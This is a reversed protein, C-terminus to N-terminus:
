GTTQTFLERDDVDDNSSRLSANARSAGSLSPPLEVRPRGNVLPQAEAQWAEMAAKRFEPDKLAEERLKAKYATLDTGVEARTKQERHWQILTEGPDRSQQMLAKLAPDVQKQAAAYAEEFEGKYTKHANSLSTERTANLQREEWKQELYQEFGDPDLLPDPKVPKTPEAKPAPRELAELRQKLAAKEARENALETEAARAREADEKLRWEPKPPIPPKEATLDGVELEPKEEIVAQEPQEITITVEPNLTPEDSIAGDFLANEDLEEVESM